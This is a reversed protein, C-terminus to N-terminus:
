GLGMVLVLIGIIILACGLLERASVEEKFIFITSFYTFLMEVQALAKILAASQLTFGIFWGFSACAGSAGALLGWKWSQAIKAIQGRDFVMMWALLVISQMTITTVLTFGAQMLFNPEALGDALSLSAGRYSTASLGFCTGAALGNLAGRSRVAALLGAIGISSKALALTIVGAVTLAIALMGSPSLRDGLLVFGIIAAQIAETRSYATGVTFSDHSFARLLFTQAIIQMFGALTVWMWFRMNTEPTEWGFGFHMIAVFMMAFPMGFGFRVFTAGVTKLKGKLHRQTASRINQMFAAAITIPVWIEM